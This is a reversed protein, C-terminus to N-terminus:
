GTTIQPISAIARNTSDKEFGENSEYSKLPGDGEPVGPLSFSLM